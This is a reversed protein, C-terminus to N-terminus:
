LGILGHAGLLALVSGVLLLLSALASPWERQLWATGRQLVAGARDGTVLLVVIMALQPALFAVNYVLLSFVEGPISVSSAVVAAIVAFYPVATPLEIAGITVGAVFASGGSPKLPMERRALRHRSLWVIVACVIMVIGAVLEVIHRVNAQPHPVLSLLLRGPGFLLVLGGIMNAILVGATFQSVRRVPAPATAMYLAPGVTSPNISDALGISIAMTILRLM